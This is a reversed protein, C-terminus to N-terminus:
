SPLSLGSSGPLTPLARCSQQGPQTPSLTQGPEASGTGTETWATVMEHRGHWACGEGPADRGGAKPCGRAPLLLARNVFSPEIEPQLAPEKDSPGPLAVGPRHCGTEGDPFPPSEVGDGAGPAARM